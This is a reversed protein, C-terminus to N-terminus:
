NYTIGSCSFQPPMCSVWELSLSPLSKWLPHRQTLWRHEMELIQPKYLFWSLLSFILHVIKTHWTPSWKTCLNTEEMHQQIKSFNLPPFSATKNKAVSRDSKHYSRMWVIFLKVFLRNQLWSKAIMRGCSYLSKYAQHKFTNKPLVSNKKKKKVGNLKLPVPSYLFPLTWYHIVLTTKTKAKISNMALKICNEESMTKVTIWFSSNVNIQFLCICASLSYLKIRLRLKDNLIKHLM